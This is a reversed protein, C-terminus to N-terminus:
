MEEVADVASSGLRTTGCFHKLAAVTLSRPIRSSLSSSAARRRQKYEQQSSLPESNCM